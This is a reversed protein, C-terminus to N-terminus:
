TKSAIKYQQLRECKSCNGGALMDGAILSRIVEIEAHQQRRDNDDLSGGLAVLDPADRNDM